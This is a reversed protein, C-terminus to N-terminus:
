APTLSKLLFSGPPPFPSPPCSAYAPAQATVERNAERSILVEAHTPRPPPHPTYTYLASHNTGKEFYLCSKM